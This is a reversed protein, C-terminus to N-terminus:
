IATPTPDSYVPLLAGFMWFTEVPDVSAVSWITNEANFTFLKSEEPTPLISL